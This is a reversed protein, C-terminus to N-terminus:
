ENLENKNQMSDITQSSLDLNAQAISPMYLTCSGYYIQCRLTSENSTVHSSITIYYERQKYSYYVYQYCM